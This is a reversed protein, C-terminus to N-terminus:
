THPRIGFPDTRPLRNGISVPTPLKELDRRIARIRSPWLSFGSSQPDAWQNLLELGFGAVLAVAFAILFNKIM